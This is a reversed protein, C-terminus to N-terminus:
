KMSTVRPRTRGLVETLRETAPGPKQGMVVPVFVVSEEPATDKLKPPKLQTEPCGSL